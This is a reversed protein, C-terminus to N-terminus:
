DGSAGGVGIDGLGCGDAGNDLEFLEGGGLAELESGWHSEGKGRTRVM